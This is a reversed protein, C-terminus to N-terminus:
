FSLPYPLGSAFSCAIFVVHWPVTWDFSILELMTSDGFGATLLLLGSTTTHVDGQESGEEPEEEVSLDAEVPVPQYSTMEVEDMIVREETECDPLPIVRSTLILALKKYDLDMDATNHAVKRLCGLLQHTYLWLPILSQQVSM